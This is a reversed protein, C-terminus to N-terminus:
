YQLELERGGDNFKAFGSGNMWDARDKMIEVFAYQM